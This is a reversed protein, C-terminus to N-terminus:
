AMSEQNPNAFKQLDAPNRRIEATNVGMKRNHQEVFNPIAAGHHTFSWALM